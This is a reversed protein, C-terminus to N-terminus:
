VVENDKVETKPLLVSHPKLTVNEGVTCGGMISAKLGINTGKGITVPAIILYGKQGYHAFITASGGVTVYDGITILGPDSIYTTNIVVGKGIKMGMMRYFLINLPSPTVFDLFTFRVMYTLGNHFFWPVSALSFWPGRFPKVKFPVLFNVLPVIFILCIGYTMYGLAFGCGQAMYRFIVPWQASFERVSDFVYVGPGAAVGLCAICVAILPALFVLFGVTRFRRLFSELLWQMGSLESTTVNVDEKVAKPLTVKKARESKLKKAAGM